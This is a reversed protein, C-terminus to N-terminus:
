HTLARLRVRTLASKSITVVETFASKLEYKGRLATDILRSLPYCATVTSFAFLLSANQWDESTDAADTSWQTISRAGAVDGSRRTPVPLNGYATGRNYRTQFSRLFEANYRFHHGLRLRGKSVRKHASKDLISNLWYIHSCNHFIHSNLAFWHHGMDIAPGEKFSQSQYPSKKRCRINWVYLLDSRPWGSRSVGRAWFM